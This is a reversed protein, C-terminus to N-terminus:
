GCCFILLSDPILTAGMLVVVENGVCNRKSVANIKKDTKSECSRGGLYSSVLNCICSPLHRIKLFWLIGIWLFHRLKWVATESQRFFWNKPLIVTQWSRSLMRLVEECRTCLRVRTTAAWSTQQHDSTISQSLLARCMATANCWLSKNKKWSSPIWFWTM